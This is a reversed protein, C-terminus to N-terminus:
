VIWPWVVFPPGVGQSIPGGLRDYVLFNVVFKGVVLRNSVNIRLQRERKWVLELRQLASM